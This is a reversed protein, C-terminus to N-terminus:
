EFPTVSMEISEPYTKITAKKLGDDTRIVKGDLERLNMGLILEENHIINQSEIYLYELNSFGGAKWNKLIEDTDKNGLLSNWLRITICTCALLYELTFWASSWIIIKQPWLTFVPKFSHDSFCSIRLYEVLGFNSSIENFLLNEDESGNHRISLRKFEVQRDLLMSIAPRYLDSNYLRIHTSFKCQFMKLLHEIASFHQTNSNHRKLFDPYISIKFSDRYNESHVEIRQNLIDLDVIVKQSYLRAM